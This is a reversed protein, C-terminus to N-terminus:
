DVRVYTLISAREIRGPFLSEFITDGGSGEGRLRRVLRGSRDGSDDRFAGSNAAFPSWAIPYVM